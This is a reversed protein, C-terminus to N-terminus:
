LKGEEPLNKMKGIIILVKEKISIKQLTVDKNDAFSKELEPDIQNEIETLYKDPISIAGIKVKKLDIHPQGKKIVLNAKLNVDTKIISQEISAWIELENNHLLIFIDKLFDIDAEGNSIRSNIYANLEDESIQVKASDDTEKAEISEMKLSIADSDEKDSFNVDPKDSHYFVRSLLPVKVIGTAAALSPLILFVFVLFIILFILCFKWFKRKKGAQRYAHHKKKSDKPEYNPINKLNSKTKSM